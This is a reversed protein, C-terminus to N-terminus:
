KESKENTVTEQTPQPKKTDYGKLNDRKWRPEALVTHPDEATAEELEEWRKHLSTM